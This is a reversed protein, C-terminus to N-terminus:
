RRQRLNRVAKEIEEAKRKHEKCLGEVIKTTM